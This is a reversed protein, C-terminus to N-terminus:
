FWSEKVLIVDDPQVLDTGKAHIKLENGHADRRKVIVGRETGHHTLGGGDSIAQVITMNREVRYMGPKQVEGYIYFQRAKPVNITDGGYLIPNDKPDGNLM